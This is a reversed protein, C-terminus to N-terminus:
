GTAQNRAKLRKLIVPILAVIGLAIFGAVLTPTLIASADLSFNCADAGDEAVCADFSAQQAEIISDLGSGVISFAFTGPIIGLFTARIYTATSVNFLAPAINVLWFPFIPVLRLFLLYNFADEAFGEAFSKIWPGARRTLNDGISSQAVFFIATAGVTAAIVTTLGAIFWGFLFGGLVTLLAGGPVSLAVILIYTVAYAAIAWLFHDNVFLMLGERHEAITALSLYKHAGSAYVATIGMLLVCLPGWRTILGKSKVADSVEPQNMSALSSDNSM